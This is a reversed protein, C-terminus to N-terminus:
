KEADEDIRRRVLREAQARTTVRGIMQEERLATVVRGVWPGPTRDGLALIETGDMLPEPEGRVVLPHMAATIQRVLDLHRSIQPPTTRPGNTALRDASSVVLLEVEAPGTAWWYRVITRLSLPQRHVLFGLRLHERVCHATVERFRTSAGHRRSWEDVIEAGVRDHGMFTIRGEPTTGFTRPKGVDHFLASFVLADGRTLGDALPEDLAARVFGADGRFVEAPDRRIVCAYRVVELIHGLVDLHHYPTQELGRAEELDPVIVGLVGLEDLTEIGRWAEEQRAILRLEALVREGATTAVSAADMRARLHTGPEIRFGTQGAIRALRVLRVPDAAFATPSVMRLVGEALDARGGHPDILGGGQAPIAMANVTLDRRALDDLIDAGQLPTLDVQAPLSGGTVRWAGFAESLPFASAGYARALDRAPDSADGDVALDVDPVPLGQLADRVAGGVVWAPQGRRAVRGGIETLIPDGIM